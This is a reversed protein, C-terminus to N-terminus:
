GGAKAATAGAERADVKSGPVLRSQGDVVVREGVVLGSDIVTLDGVSRGVRIPRLRASSTSDIVYVFSGTQSSQIAAAPVALVNAQVELQVTVQLYEGPWLKRSANEFRAKATVTATLSDVANDTFSLLGSEAFPVSDATTVRVPLAGHAQRQEIALFDRQTIPFRVLIPHIQNIVVLAEANPKVVNGQRVLLSGTRGGIPARVTTYNLNLRANEVAGSDAQVTAQLAAATADAQDAQSKTVYDRAVLARYREAERRASQAQAVDRMLGAEAQRLAAEFPRPDIRFLIQGEVVEDGEHFVVQTLIGGVQSQVAVTQLPEAVGNATVVIPASIRTVTGVRVPVTPQHVSSDTHCAISLLATALVSARGVQHTRMIM